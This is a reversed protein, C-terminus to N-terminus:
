YFSEKFPKEKPGRLWLRGVHSNLIQVSCLYQHEIMNLFILGFVQKPGCPTVQSPPPCTKWAVNEKNGKGIFFRKTVPNEETLDCGEQLKRLKRVSTFHADKRQHPVFVLGTMNQINSTLSRLIHKM